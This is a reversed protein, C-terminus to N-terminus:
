QFETAGVTFDRHKSRQWTWWAGTGAAMLCPRFDASSGFFYTKKIPIMGTIFFSFSFFFSVGGVLGNFLYIYIYLSIHLYWLSLCFLMPNLNNSCRHWTLHNQTEFHPIGLISFSSLLPQFIAFTRGDRNMFRWSLLSNTPCNPRQWHM